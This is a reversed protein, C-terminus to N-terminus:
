FGQTPGGSYCPWRFSADTPAEKKGGPPQLAYDEQPEARLTLAHTMTPRPSNAFRIM